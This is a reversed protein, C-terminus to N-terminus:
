FGINLDAVPGHAIRREAPSDASGVPFNGGQGRGLCDPLKAFLLPDSRDHNYEVADCTTRGAPNPRM